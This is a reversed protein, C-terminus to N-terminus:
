VYMCVHMRVYLQMYATIDVIHTISLYIFSYNSGIKSILILEHINNYLEDTDDDFIETLSHTLTLTTYTHTHM